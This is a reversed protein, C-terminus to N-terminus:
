VYAIKISQGDRNGTSFLILKSEDCLKLQL